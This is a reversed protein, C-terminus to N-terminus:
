WTETLAPKLWEDGFTQLYSLVLFCFFNSLDQKNLILLFRVKNVYYLSSVDYLEDTNGM